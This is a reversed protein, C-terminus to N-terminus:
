IIFEALIGLGISILMVWITSLKYKLALIFTIAFIILFTVNLNSQRFITIGASFILGIIAPRLGKFIAKLQQSGSIQKLYGSLAIMVLGSPLFIGITATIAGIVGAVKYGIFTASILIPGPTIQSIAIATNFESSTLWHLQNVVTEQIIPIFVYGGGFLSLSMSSFTLFLQSNVKFYAEGGFTYMLVFCGGLLLLISSIGVLLEKPLGIKLTTTVSSNESKKYYLFYGLLGGAFIVGVTIMIGGIWQFLIISILGIVFQPWTKLQKRSMNIGVTLIIIIIAPILYGVVAQFTDVSGFKFYFISFGLVLIFSPFIVAAMSMIAGWFGRLYNGVYGVVNVAVPGPLLSALSIGDLLVHDKLNKDKDVVEKKLVAVLAMFGGFSISGVKSFLLILYSLSVLKHDKNESM